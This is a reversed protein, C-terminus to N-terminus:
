QTKEALWTVIAQYLATEMKGGGPPGGAGGGPAGGPQGGAPPGGAGGPGGGQGGGPGGAGPTGMPPPGGQGSAQLTALQDPSPTGQPGIPLEIGLTEALAALDASTWQMSQIAELQATTMAAQIAELATQLAEQDVPEAQSLSLATQWLPLLTAAQTSTVALDSGELKLMGLALQMVPPLQGEAGPTAQGGPAFGAQAPDRGPAAPTGAAAGPGGPAGGTPPPNNAEVGQPNAAQRGDGPAPDDGPAGPTSAAPPPNSGPAGAPNEGAAPASAGNAPDNSREKGPANSGQTLNNSNLAQGSGNLTASQGDCGAVLLALLITLTIIRIWLRTKM